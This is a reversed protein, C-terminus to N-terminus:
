RANLGFAFSTMSISSVIEDVLIEAAEGPQCAGLVYLLPLYHDHEPVALQWSPDLRQYDILAADDAALVCQKVRADFARAWDPADTAGRDLLRLNHVINGTGLIMVGERRLAGIMRGIAFHEATTRRIDMSLQLVPVNADPFVFRLVSWTGHDLGWGDLDARAFPALLAEIRKALAPSGPARYEIAYLEPPFNYFDHITRPREAATILTGKTEWHASVCLVAEPKAVRRGVEQWARTFRNDSLANMPSGHGIFFAPARHNDM